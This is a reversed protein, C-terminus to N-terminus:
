RWPWQMFGGPAIGADRLVVTRIGLVAFLSILGESGVTGRRALGVAGKFAADSV